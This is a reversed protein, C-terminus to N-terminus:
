LDRAPLRRCRCGRRLGEEGRAGAHGQAHLGQPGAGHGPAPAFQRGPRRRQPGGRHNGQRAQRVAQGQCRRGAGQGKSEMACGHHRRRRNITPAQRGCPAGLPPGCATRHLSSLVLSRAAHRGRGAPMTIAQGAAAPSELRAAAGARRSGPATAKGRVACSNLFPVVAVGPRRLQEPGAAPRFVRSCAGRRRHAACAGARAGFGLTSGYRRPRCAARGDAPM